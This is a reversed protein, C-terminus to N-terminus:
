IGLGEFREALLGNGVAVAEAWWLVVAARQVGVLGWGGGVRGGAEEDWTGECEGAEL